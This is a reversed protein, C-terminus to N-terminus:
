RTDLPRDSSSYWVYSARAVHSYPTHIDWFLAVALINNPGCSARWSCVVHLMLMYGVVCRPGDRTRRVQLVHESRLAMVRSPGKLWVEPDEVTEGDGARRGHGLRGGAELGWTHM